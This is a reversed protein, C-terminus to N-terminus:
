QRSAETLDNAAFHARLADITSGRPDKTVGYKIKALTPEPVGTAAHLERLQAENMAKVRNIIDISTDM